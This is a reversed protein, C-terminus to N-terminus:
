SHRGYTASPGRLTFLGLSKVNCLSTTVQVPAFDHMKSIQYISVGRTDLFASLLHVDTNDESSLLQWFKNAFRLIFIFVRITWKIKLCKVNKSPASRSERYLSGSYIAESIMKSEFDYKQCVLEVKHHIHM